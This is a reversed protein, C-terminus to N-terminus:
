FSSGSFQDESSSPTAGSSSGSESGFSSEPIVPPASASEGVTARHGGTVVLVSPLPYPMGVDGYRAGDPEHLPAREYAKAPESTGSAAQANQSEPFSTLRFEGNSETSTAGASVSSSAATKPADNLPCTSPLPVSGGRAVLASTTEDLVVPSQRSSDADCGGEAFLALVSVFAIASGSTAPLVRKM